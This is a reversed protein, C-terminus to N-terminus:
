GGISAGAALIAGTLLQLRATAGLIAVLRSPDDSRTITRILPTTFPVLFVAVATAPPTVGVVAGTGIVLFAGLILATYLTRAGGHGLIVALTRKGARRDSELDRLNNAVLIAAALAGMVAGLWWSDAPATGDHAFRTGVTAVFGFFIFVAFEGLGRYGYPIPGGVYTLMALISVVGIVAIAWGAITILWIGAATAVGIAIATAIWMSRASIKGSAVMREPGRRDAADAGRAADSADNAFNAAVQIALSGILCGWFADARFM